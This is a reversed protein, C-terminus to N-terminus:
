NWFKYSLSSVIVVSMTDITLNIPKYSTKAKPIKFSDYLERALHSDRLRVVEKIFLKLAKATHEARSKNEEALELIYEKLKDPSLEYNLDALTHRLYNIRTKWTSKARDEKMLKEFLEVDEKTVLYSTSTQRLYEGFQKQLLMFFMSRFGPDRVAKSIVAIADNITVERPNFGHVVEYVEDVTLANVIKEMVEQPIDLEKGREDYGRLYLYLQKRSRGTIEQLKGMGLKEKAKELLRIKQEKTLKSVDVLNAM